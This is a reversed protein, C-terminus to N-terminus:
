PGDLSFSIGRYYPLPHRLEFIALDRSLTYKMPRESFIDNLTVGEDDPGTALYREMVEAGKIKRPRVMMAVHYNTGILRCEPDLCFGTGFNAEVGLSMKPKLATLGVSSPFSKSKELKLKLQTIPLVTKSM